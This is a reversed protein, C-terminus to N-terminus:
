SSMHKMEIKKWERTRSSKEGRKEKCKSKKDNGYWVMVIICTGCMTNGYIYLRENSELSDIIKNEFSWTEVVLPFTNSLFPM